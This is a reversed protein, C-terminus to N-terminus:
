EARRGGEGGAARRLRDALEACAVAYGRTFAADCRVSERAADRLGAALDAADRLVERAMAELDARMAPTPGPFWNACCRNAYWGAPKM